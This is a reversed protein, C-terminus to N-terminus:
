VSVSWVCVGGMGMGVDVGVDECVRVCMCVIIGLGIHHGYLDEDGGYCPDRAM